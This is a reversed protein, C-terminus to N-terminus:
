IQEYFNVENKTYNYFNNYLELGPLGTLDNPDKDDFLIELKHQLIENELDGLFM